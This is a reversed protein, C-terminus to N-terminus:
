KIKEIAICDGSYAFTVRAAATTDCSFVNIFQKKGRRCVGV